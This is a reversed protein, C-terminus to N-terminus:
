ARRARRRATDCPADRSGSSTSGIVVSSSMSFRWTRTAPRSIRLPTESRTFAPSICAIMPGFPAPLDVSAEIPALKQASQVNGTELWFYLPKKDTDATLPSRRVPGSGIFFRGSADAYGCSRIESDSQRLCINSAVPQKGSTLMGHIEPTFTKPEGAAAVICAFALPVLLMRHTM